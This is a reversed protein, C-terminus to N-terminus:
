EKEEGNLNLQLQVLPYQDLSHLFEMIAIKEPSGFFLNEWFCNQHDGLYKVYM